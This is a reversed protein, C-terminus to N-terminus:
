NFLGIAEGISTLKVTISNQSFKSVRIIIIIIIIMSTLFFNSLQLDKSKQMDVANKTYYVIKVKDVFSIM